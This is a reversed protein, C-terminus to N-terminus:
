NKDTKLPNRIRCSVSTIGLKFYRLTFRMYNRHDVMKKVTLEGFRLLKVSEEGYRDRLYSFLNGVKCEDEQYTNGHPPVKVEGRGYWVSQWVHRIGM